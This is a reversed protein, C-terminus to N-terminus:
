RKERSIRGQTRLMGEEQLVCILFEQIVLSTSILERLNEKCSFTM